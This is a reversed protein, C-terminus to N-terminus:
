DLALDEDGPKYVVYILLMTLMEQDSRMDGTSEVLKPPNNPNMPNESTNDFTGYMHVVDGKMLTVPKRYRYIEQWRFDWSPIHVLPITDNEDRTAYAKFEKGLYHMHPWVYLVSIDERSNAIRLRHTQVKEPFLLLPPFIDREGIGGSGLSIVKVTRSIATKKFFFNVGSISEEDKGSPSFHITLLMVGRRPMVWGM